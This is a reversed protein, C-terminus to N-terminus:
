RNFMFKLEVSGLSVAPMIAQRKPQQVM